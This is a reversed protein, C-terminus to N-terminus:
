NMQVVEGMKMKRQESSLNPIEEIIAQLLQSDKDDLIM